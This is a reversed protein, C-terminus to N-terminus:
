HTPWALVGSKCIFYEMGTIISFYFRCDGALASNPYEDHCTVRYKLLLEFAVSAIICISEGCVGVKPCHGKNM